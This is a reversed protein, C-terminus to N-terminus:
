VEELEYAIAKVRYEKPGDPADLDYVHKGCYNVLKEEPFTYAQYEPLDRIDHREPPLYFYGYRGDEQKDWYAWEVKKFPVGYQIMAYALRRQYKSLSEIRYSKEVLNALTMKKIREAEIKEELRTINNTIDWPVPVKLKEIEQKRKRLEALEDELTM